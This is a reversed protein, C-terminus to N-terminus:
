LLASIGYGLLIKCVVYCVLHLAMYFFNLFREVDKLLEVFVLIM